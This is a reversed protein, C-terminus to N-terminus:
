VVSKRDAILILSYEEREIEQRILDHIERDVAKLREM